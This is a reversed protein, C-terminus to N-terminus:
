TCPEVRQKWCMPDAALLDGTANVGVARCGRCWYLLECDRCGKIGEVQTYRQIAEGHEVDWLDDTAINGVLSPMRRCALLDGNACITAKAGVHCGACVDTRGQAWASVEFEGLEWRLLTFLHDKTKFVTQCGAHELEQKKQWYALLFARYEDATPYLEQAKAPSTACYRAFAFSSAGHQAAVDMCSLIDDLNQRSATAMLQTQIGAARLPVLAALTARYSGPKRLYDHFEELGDLSMQYQLCGLQRLRRCVETDLHFPNGMATWSIGRRHLEEAFDWFRPHLLPDGGSIALTPYAHSRACRREVQDLTRMLQDWPTTVCAARADEGFLYCHKCRQDCEDTIHWQYAIGPKLSFGAYGMIKDSIVITSTVEVLREGEWALTLSAVDLLVVLEQYGREADYYPVGFRGSARQLASLHDEGVGLQALIGLVEQRQPNTAFTQQMGARPLHAVLCFRGEESQVDLHACLPALRELLEVCGVPADGLSDTAPRPEHGRVDDVCTFPRVGEQSARLGVLENWTCPRPVRPGAGAGPWAGGAAYSVVHYDYSDLVMAAHPLAEGVLPYSLWVDPLYHSPLHACLQAACEGVGRALVGRKRAVRLMYRLIAGSEIPCVGIRNQEGREQKM